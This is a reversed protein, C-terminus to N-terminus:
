GCDAAILAQHAGVGALVGAAVAATVTHMPAALDGAAFVGPVSTQKTADVRLYPGQPGDEFTCGLAEAVPSAPLVRGGAFLASLALTRGDALRVGDLGPATGLLAVVPSRELVVGRRQLRAQADADPEFGDQLLCTTPGWDPLMLARHLGTADGAFVGIARRDIEFGHCYPCHLVSRGWRAALGDIEPLVDRVGTALVLTRSHFKRGDELRVHFGADARIAEVAEGDIISADPYRILEARGDILLQLPSTGDRGLVNHMASAFRNRPRAADVVLVRRRARALAQAASLGASGGGVIIADYRM